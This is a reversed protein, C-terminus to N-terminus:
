RSLFDVWTFFCIMLSVIRNLSFFRQNIRSLDQFSVLSHQYALIAGSVLVGLYYFLGLNSLFGVLLFLCLSFFHFIIPIILGAALGFRSPISHLGWDRDFQIDLCAYITDFGAIWFMVGLGLLIPVLEVTGRIAIWSGLPAWALAIGLVLHCLWSFRKIYSYIFLIFIILPLFYFCLPNLNLTAVLLLGLSVLIFIIMELSSVLGRPMPWHATRPNAKDIDRDILRNLGMAANRAGLVAAIIWFLDHFSPFGRAALLAGVGAFPLAFLTYEFQITKLILNLKM